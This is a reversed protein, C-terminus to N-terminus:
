VKYNLRYLKVRGRGRRVEGEEGEKKWGSNSNKFYKSKGGGVKRGATKNKGLWGDTSEVQLSPVFDDDDQDETRAQLQAALHDLKKRQFETTVSLIVDQYHKMRHGTMHEVRSLATLSVPLGASIERLCQVPIVEHVGSIVRDEQCSQAAALVVQKLTELCEEQIQLLKSDAEDLRAECREQSTKKVQVQHLIRGAEGSLLKQAKPGMKVYASAGCDKNVVLEEWLFGELILKKVIRNAELATLHSAKGYLPDTDWGSNVVKQCRSGRWIDVLHNVTFNRQKFQRSFSLRQVTKVVSIASDTIDQKEISLDEMKKCNDCKTQRM